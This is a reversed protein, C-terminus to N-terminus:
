SMEEPKSMDVGLRRLRQELSSITAAIIHELGAEPEVRNAKVAEDLEWVNQIIQSALFAAANDATSERALFRGVAEFSQVITGQGEEGGDLQVYEYPRDVPLAIMVPPVGLVTSIALLQDVTIDTKRGNEINTIIGRTLGLGAREALERATLGSLRRYNAVRKGIGNSPRVSPM